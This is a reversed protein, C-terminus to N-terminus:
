CSLCRDICWGRASDLSGDLGWRARRALASPSRLVGFTACIDIMHILVSRVTPYDVGWDDWRPDRQAPSDTEAVAALVRDAEAIENRYLEFIIEATEGRGIIWDGNPEAPFAM